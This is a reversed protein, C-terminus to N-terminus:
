RTATGRLGLLGKLYELEGLHRNDHALESMIVDAVTTRRSMFRSEVETGFRSEDITQRAADVAAFVERVFGLLEDKPPLPLSAAREDDWGTGSGKEPHDWRAAYRGNEWVSRGTLDFAVNDDARAVHWLTWGLSHAKPAPRYRLQEDTLDGVVKLVREHAQAGRFRIEELPGRVDV